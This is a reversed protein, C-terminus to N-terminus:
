PEEPLIVDGAALRRVMALPSGHPRHRLRVRRVAYEGIFMLLVMPADLVNVFLSWVAHPAFLFLTASMAIQGAFFICWAKTM